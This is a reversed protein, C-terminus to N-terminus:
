VTTVTVDGTSSEVYVRATGPTGSNDTAILWFDDKAPIYEDPLTFAVLGSSATIDIVGDFELRGHEDWRFRVREYPDGAHDAGNQWAPSDPTTFDDTPWEGVYVWTSPGRKRQEYVGRTARRGVVADTPNEKPRSM